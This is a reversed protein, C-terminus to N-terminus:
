LLSAVNVNFAQSIRVARALSPRERRNVIKSVYFESMGLIAAAQRQTLGQAEIAAKLSHFERPMQRPKKRANGM